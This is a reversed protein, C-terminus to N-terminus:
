STALDGLFLGWFQPKTLSTDAFDNFGDEAKLYPNDPIGVASKRQSYTKGGNFDSVGLKGLLYDLLGDIIQTIM